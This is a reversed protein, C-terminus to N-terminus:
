NDEEHGAAETDRNEIRGASKMSEPDFLGGCMACVLKGLKENYFISAGCNPCKASRTGNINSNEDIWTM